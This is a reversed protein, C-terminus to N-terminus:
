FYSWKVVLGDSGFGTKRDVSIKVTGCTTKVSLSDLRLLISHDALNEGEDAVSIYYRDRSDEILDAKELRVSLGGGSVMAGVDIPFSYSKGDCAMATACTLLWAAIWAIAKM